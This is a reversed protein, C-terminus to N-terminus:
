EDLNVESALFVPGDACVRPRSGDRGACVCSWCMGTGCGMHAELSLQADIGYEAALRAASVLMPKPGCAMVNAYGGAALLERAAETVFGRRGCSGDDTCIHVRAGTAAFDGEMHVLSATRFGLVADADNGYFGALSLLPYIGIGGGILLTKGAPTRFGSGLPGLVDLKDGPELSALWKTGAGRAEFCLRLQGDRAECISIPRRLYAPPACALMVFQGPLASAACEPANVWMSWIPHGPTLRSKSTIHPM